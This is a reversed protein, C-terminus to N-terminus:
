KEVMEERKDGYRENTNGREYCNLVSKLHGEKWGGRLDNISTCKFEYMLATEVKCLIHMLKRLKNLRDKFYSSIVTMHTSFEWVSNDIDRMKKLHGDPKIGAHKMIGRHRKTVYKPVQFNRIARKM